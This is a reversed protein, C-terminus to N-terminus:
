RPRKWVFLIAVGALAAIAVTSGMFSGFEPIEFTFQVNVLSVGFENCVDTATEQGGYTAVVNIDNGIDWEFDSFEVQYFGDSDTECTLTVVKQVITVAVSAGEVPTGAADTIFGSVTYPGTGSLAPRSATDLVTSLMALVALEFVLIALLRRNRRHSIRM